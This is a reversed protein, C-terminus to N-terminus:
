RFAACIKKLMRKKFEWFFRFQGTLSGLIFLVIFYAPTVILIYLLVYLIPHTSSDIGIFDFLHPKIFLM